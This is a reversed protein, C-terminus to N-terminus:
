VIRAILLGQGVPIEVLEIGPRAHIDELFGELGDEKHSIVNDVVIMGGSSMFPLVSELFDGHQNKTADFFALDIHAPIADPAYGFQLPNRLIEPAHGKLSSIRHVLGSNAFNEQARVYREKHSEITVLRGKGNAELADAMWLGSYGVSTGIELVVEPQVVRLLWHLMRGTSRGVIWVPEQEHEQEIRHLIDALM